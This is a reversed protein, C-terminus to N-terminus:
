NEDVNLTYYAATIVCDSVNSNDNGNDELSVDLMALNLKEDKVLEIDLSVVHELDDVDNEAFLQGLTNDEIIADGLPDAVIEIAAAEGVYYEEIENDSTDANPM